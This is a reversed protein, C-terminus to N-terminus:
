LLICPSRLIFQFFLLDCASSSLMRTDILGLWRKKRTHIHTNRGPQLHNRICIRLAFIFFELRTKWFSCTLRKYSSLYHNCSLIQLSGPELQEKWSLFDNPKAKWKLSDERKRVRHPLIGSSNLHKLFHFATFSTLHGLILSVSGMLHWLWSWLSAAAVCNKIGVRFKIATKCYSYAHYGYNHSGIADRVPSRLVSTWCFDFCSVGDLISVAITNRM